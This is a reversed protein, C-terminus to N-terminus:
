ATAAQAVREKCDRAAGRAADIAREVDADTHELCLFWPHPTVYIGRRQMGACFEVLANGKDTTAQVGPMPPYGVVRLPAGTEDFVAQLGDLLRQGQRWFQGIGDHAELERITVLAAVTSLLDGHFTAALHTDTRGAMIDRRGVVVSGPYGNCMAKGFCSVDPRIGFRKQAGGLDFRFGTKVEDLIFVCGHEDCLRRVGDFYGPSPGAGQISEIIVGAVNGANKKLLDELANLDNYPVGQILESMVRPVGKGGPQTWDFWGHYGCRIIVERGTHCRAVRIAGATASSGGTFYMLMDAGPILSRLKEALEIELPHEISYVTGDEMQRRIAENVAANAYGLVIPGYALLFDVYEHGDVDWFRGGHARAVFSPGGLKMTDVPRKHAQGGGVLVQCSREWMERSKANRSLWEPPVM